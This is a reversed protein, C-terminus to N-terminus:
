AASDSWRAAPFMEFGDPTAAAPREALVDAAAGIGELVAGASCPKLLVGLAADRAQRATLVEDTLFLSPIDLRRKLDRALGVGTAGDLLQPDIIALDPCSTEALLVGLSASAVPGIVAHGAERLSQEVIHSVADDSEVVLVRM